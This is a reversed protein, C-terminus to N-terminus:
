GTSAVLEPSEPGAEPPHADVLGVSSVYHDGLGEEEQANENGDGGVENEEVGEGMMGVVHHDPEGEGEDEAEGGEDGSPRRRKRKRSLISKQKFQVSRYRDIEVTVSLHMPDLVGIWWGHLGTTRKSPLVLYVWSSGLHCMALHAKSTTDLALESGQETITVHPCHLRPPGLLAIILADLVCSQELFVPTSICPFSESLPAPM